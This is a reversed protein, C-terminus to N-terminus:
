TKLEWNKSVVYERLTMAGDSTSECVECPKKNNIYPDNAIQESTPTILKVYIADFRVESPTSVILTQTTSGTLNWLEQATNILSEDTLLHGYQTRSGIQLSIKVNKLKLNTLKSCGSFANTTITTNILNLTEVTELQNCEWCIAGISQMKLNPNLKLTKLKSCSHVISDSLTSTLEGTLGTLDAEELETCQSCIHRINDITGSSKLYPVRKIATGSLFSKFNKVKSTDLGDLVDELGTAKCNAFESDLTQMNDCKFQLRDIGSKAEVTSGIRTLGRYTKGM